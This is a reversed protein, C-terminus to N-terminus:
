LNMIAEVLKLMALPILILFFNSVLLNLNFLQQKDQTHLLM